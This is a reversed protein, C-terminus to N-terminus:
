SSAPPESLLTLEQKRFPDTHGFITRQERPTRLLYGARRQISSIPADRAAMRLLVLDDIQHALQIVELEYPDTSKVIETLAEREHRRWEAEVADRRNAEAQERDHELQLRM